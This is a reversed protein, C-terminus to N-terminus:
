EKEGGMKAKRLVAMVGKTSTTDKAAVSMGPRLKTLASIIVQTGDDLGETIELYHRGEFGRKVNVRKARNKEDVVYVFGGQQDELVVNPPVMFFAIKDTLFIDAYVFTGELLLYEPNAVSVRMTITGTMADVRNDTFDVKGTFPDRKIVNRQSPVRLRADLVEKSAFKRMIQYEEETPRFYAYMPNDSLMTTLVTKEGFGVVNGVDVHLRSIRGSIPARVTTYSLNLKATRIVADDAEVVALLENRKAQYEELTIRPALGEAVLPEFRKVNATALDLTAQDRRRRAQAQHLDDLYSNKEIEFLPVGKKVFAGEQFLVKEFIGTVRARVEVSKSAETKGTFEFWIPIPEKKVVIVEVPLAPKASASQEKKDKCLGVMPITLLITTLAIILLRKM